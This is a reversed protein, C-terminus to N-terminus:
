KQLSGPIISSLTVTKVTSGVTYTVTYTTCEPYLPLDGVRGNDKLYLSNTAFELTYNSYNSFLDLQQRVLEMFEYWIENNNALLPQPCDKGSFFHHGVIRNLPLEFEILLQACLQATYQWTLWLDSGERVSTEMGVSNNNGGTSSIYRYSTNYYCGGIYWKSGVLKVGLGLSNLKTYGTTNQVNTKVGKLYFYNDSGLTVDYTYLDTGVQATTLGSDFWTMRKSSGAHWSGWATNQCYWVGDNGTSYNWSAGDATQNYSALNKGGTLSASASYPMDAAYHVTIFDIGGKGEGNLTTTKSPNSLYYNKHVVYDEFLLKSVSGYVDYYYAPTGAGIGLDYKTFINANNSDALLKLMGTPAENFVTVYFTFKVDKNEADCVVIEALGEKVGTVVGYQDVTAISTDKSEWILTRTADKSHKANLQIADNKVVYSEEAFEGDIYPSVYVEVDFSMNLEENGHVRISITAVGEKLSKLLGNESVELVEPNSSKFTVKKFTANAPGIEWTLQYTSYKVMESIQNTVAFSEVPTAESWKATLVINGKTGAPISEVKNGDEDYWGLFTRGDEIVLDILKVEEGVKYESILPIKIQTAALLAEDMSAKWTVPPTNNLWQGFRLIGVYSNWANQAGNAATVQADFVTFWANWEEFNEPANVFYNEDITDKGNQKYFLYNGQSQKDKWQAIVKSKFTEFDDAPKLWEYYSTLVYEKVEDISSPTRTPLKGDTYIYQIKYIEDEGEVWNAYVTFDSHASTPIKTITNFGEVDTSWGVFTYGKKTPKPLVAGEFQAYVTPAGEPLTGGNLVYDIAYTPAPANLDFWLAYLTTAETVSTVKEGNFLPNDYWGLFIHGEKVPAVLNLPTGVVGETVVYVNESPTTVDYGVTPTPILGRLGDFTADNRLGQTGYFYGDLVFGCAGKFSSSTTTISTYRAQTLQILHKTLNAYKEKYPSTGLFGGVAEYGNVSDFFLESYGDAASYGGTSTANYWAVPDGYPSSFGAWNNVQLTAAVESSALLDNELLYGYFDAMFIEPLNSVADIGKAPDTVEAVTWSWEGGDLNYKVEFPEGVVPEHYEEWNAYVTVKGTSTAPITTIYENNGEGTTWGIFKYGDKTPNPLTFVKGEEYKSEAGEPLVGEYLVYEIEGYYIIKEWKAYFTLNTKQTPLVETYYKTSTKTITWGLFTYGDKTPVPLKVGEGVVYSTPADEPNEGGDLVYKITKTEVVPANEEWKAYLKIDGTTGQAISTVKAGSFDEAKYWGAFTYNEKTPAELAIPLNDTKYTSPNASNQVGGNLEYTINYTEAPVAKALVEITFEYEKVLSNLTFVVQLNFEGAAVATITTGEVTAVKTNTSVWTSTVGAQESYTVTVVDDVYMAEPVNDFVVDDIKQPQQQPVCASIVAVFLVITLLLLKKFNNM